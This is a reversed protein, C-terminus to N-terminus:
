YHMDKKIFHNKVFIFSYVIPINLSLHFSSNWIGNIISLRFLETSKDVGLVRYRWENISWPHYIWDVLIVILIMTALVLPNKNKIGKSFKFLKVSLFIVLIISGILSLYKQILRGIMDEESELKGSILIREPYLRKYDISLITIFTAIFGIIIFSVIWTVEKKNKFKDLTYKLFSAILAIIIPEIQLSWFWLGIVGRIVLQLTDILIVSIISLWLPLVLSIAIYISITIFTYHNIRIFSDSVIGIAVLIGALSIERPSTKFYSKITNFM